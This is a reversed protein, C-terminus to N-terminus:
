LSLPVNTITHTLGILINKLGIRYLDMLKTILAKFQQCSFNYMTIPASTKAGVVLTKARWNRGVMFLTECSHLDTSFFARLQVM